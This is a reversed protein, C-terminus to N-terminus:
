INTKRQLWANHVAEIMSELMAFPDDSKMIGSTSGTGDAGAAIVDFVDDPGSIGAGHLALIEEDIEHIANNIDIIHKIEEEDRAAGGIKEPSETIIITPGLKAVAVAGAKDDACVMTMLGVDKAREMALILDDNSLRREVHNLLVGSAGAAKLAEPLVAGVGRGVQIGDMHQAFVHIHQTASSIVPIDVCQPTVIIDVSFTVSLEDAFKALNIFDEGYMYAKPGLEFFPAQIKRENNM